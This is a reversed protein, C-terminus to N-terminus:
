WLMKLEWKMGLLDQFLDEEAKLRFDQVNRRLSLCHVVGTGQDHERSIHRCFGFGGYSNGRSREGYNIGLTSVNETESMDVGLEEMHKRLRGVSRERERAPTNRPVVPKNSQKVLRADQKMIKKKDRIQQALERIERMTEDMELKPM